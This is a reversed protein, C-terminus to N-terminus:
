GPHHRSFALLTAAALLLTEATLALLAPAASALGERLTRERFAFRPISGPALPRQSVYGRFYLLHPSQPDAADLQRLREALVARYAWAQEVFAHDRDLGAGLLREAADQFLTAPSVSALTRTLAAQQLKQELVRRRIEEQLAARRNEGRASIREWAYDDAAAWGSPRWRGGQGGVEREAQRRAEAMREDIEAGTPLPQLGRALFVSLAPVVVVATVWLLALVGLSASLDRTLASVLLAILVLFAAAWLGLLVGLAAHALDQATPRLDSVALALLLSSASAALFPFALCAWGALLKGALIKWHPIPSSFLLKLTGKQREGCVAGHCLLFAGVSLVMRISLMWDVPPTGRLRPNDGAKRIEPEALASLVQEYTNPTATQGGDVVLGLRLPPKLAPHAMEALSDVSAGELQRAYSEALRAQEAVDRRYRSASTAAAVVMLALLLIAPAWLRFSGAALHVEHWFVTAIVRRPAEAAASFPLGPASVEQLPPRPDPQGIM